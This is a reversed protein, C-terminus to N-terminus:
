DRKLMGLQYLFPPPSIERFLSFHAGALHSDPCPCPSGASAPSHTSPLAAAPRSPPRSGQAGLGASGCEPVCGARASPIRLPPPPEPVLSRSGM